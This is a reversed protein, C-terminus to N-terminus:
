PKARGTRPLACTGFDQKEGVAQRILGLGARDGPFRPQRLPRLPLVVGDSRTLTGSVDIGFTASAMAVAPVPGTRRTADPAIVIVPISALHARAAPSLSEPLADAVILLADVERAALMTDLTARDDVPEPYGRRFDVSQPYGAQWTLAAVAGAGNGAAGLGMLVFRSAENRERVLMSIAEWEARTSRGDSVRPQYFIV